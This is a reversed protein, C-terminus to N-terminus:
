KVEKKQLFYGLNGLIIFIIILLHVVTISDMGKIAFPMPKKYGKEQLLKNVLDEYEAAGKMGGLMGIFQGTQLFPYYDAAMVATVGAAVKQGYRSYAYAVWSGPYGAGSFSIVLAIDRYSHIEKMMPLSDLPTGYYDTPFVKRIEEGLGLMTAVFNPKFGLYVYDEGYKKGFEKSIRDFAQVGLGVGAPNLAIGIVKINRLMAHRLISLFMPHVEPLVSADYDVSMLIASGPPLTDIFQYVDRFPPTINEPIGLPKLLPILIGLGVLLFIIRRDLTSLVRIIKM